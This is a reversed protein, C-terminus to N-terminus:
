TTVAPSGSSQWFYFDGELNSPKSHVYMMLSHQNIALGPQSTHM